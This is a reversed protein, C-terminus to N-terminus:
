FGYVNEISVFMGHGTANNTFRTGDQNASITWGKLNYNQGYAMTLFDIPSSGGLGSACCQFSFNGGADVIAFQRGPGFGGGRRAECMVISGSPVIMTGGYRSDTGPYSDYLVCQVKGSQTIVYQGTDANAPAAALTTCLVASFGITIVRRAASFDLM